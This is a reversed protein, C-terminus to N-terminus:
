NEDGDEEDDGDNEDSEDSEDSEDDEDAEDPEDAEVAEDVEVAEDPEDAEIDEVAEDAEDASVTDGDGDSSDADADEDSSDTSAADTSDADVDQDSSDGDVDGDSSDGDVDTDTSVSAVGVSPAAPHDHTADAVIEFVEALEDLLANIAADREAGPALARIAQIELHIADIRLLASELIATTDHSQVGATPSMGALMGSAAAPAATSLAFVGAAITAAIKKKNM